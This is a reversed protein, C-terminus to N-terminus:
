NSKGYVGNLDIGTKGYNDITVNEITIGDNGGSMDRICLGYKAIKGFDLSVNSLTSGNCGNSFVFGYITGEGSFKITYGNGTINVCKTIKM